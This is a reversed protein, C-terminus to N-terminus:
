GRWSEPPVHGDYDTIIVNLGETFEQMEEISNLRIPTNPNFSSGFCQEKINAATTYTVQIGAEMAPILYEKELKRYMTGYRKDTKFEVDVFITFKSRDFNHTGLRQAAEFYSKKVALIMMLKTTTDYVAASNTTVGDPTVTTTAEIQLVKTRIIIGGSISYHVDGINFTRYNSGYLYRPVYRWSKQVGYSDVTYPLEYFKVPRENVITETASFQMRHWFPVFPSSLTDGRLDPMRRWSDTVGRYLGSIGSTHLIQDVTM